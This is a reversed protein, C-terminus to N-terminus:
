QGGTGTVHFSLVHVADGYKHHLAARVSEVCETTIGFQTLAITFPRWKHSNTNALFHHTLTTTVYNSAMGVMSAAANDAVLQFIENDGGVMDVISPMLMLDSHGILQAAMSSAAVTSIILKPMGLPLHQSFVSSCIATGCSGGIGIVGAISNHQTHEASLFSALSATM